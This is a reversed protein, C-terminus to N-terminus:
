LMLVNFGRGDNARLATLGSQVGSAIEVAYGARLLSRRVLEATGPDDEVMLVRGSDPQPDTSLISMARQGGDSGSQSQFESQFELRSDHRIGEHRSPHGPSFPGPAQDGRHIAQLRRAKHHLGLM